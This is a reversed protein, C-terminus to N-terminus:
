NAGNRVKSGSGNFDNKTHRNPMGDLRNFLFHVIRGKYKLIHDVPISDYTGEKLQKDDQERTCFM